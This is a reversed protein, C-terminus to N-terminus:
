TEELAHDGIALAKQISVTLVIWWKIAGVANNVLSIQHLPRWAPPIPSAGRPQAPGPADEPGM